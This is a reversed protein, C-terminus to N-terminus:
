LKAGLILTFIFGFVLACNSAIALARLISTDYAPVYPVQKHFYGLAYATPSLERLRGDYVANSRRYFIEVRARKDAGQLFDRIELAIFIRTSPTERIINFDAAFNTVPTGDYRAIRIEFDDPANLQRLIYAPKNFQLILNNNETVELGVIDLEVYTCVDMSTPSGGSCSWDQEIECTSSCGDGDETNGDDCALLGFNLGDGCIEV